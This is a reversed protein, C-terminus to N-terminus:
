DAYTETRNKADLPPQPPLAEASLMEPKVIELYQVIAGLMLGEVAIIPLHALLLLDALTRWDEKGGNFLVLFNLTVALAVAGGGILVGRIFTPVKVAKLIPYCWGALFAPIAIICTNLGLTTYGGHHLLICQLLLGIAIALPARRGLVVGVMGNLILHVSAAGLKIHISSGVFFAASLLAIRPIDDERIRWLAILILIAAGAFGALLWPTAIVGDSLHVAFLPFPM